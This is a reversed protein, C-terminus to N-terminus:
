VNVGLGFNHGTFTAAPSRPVDLTWQRQMQAHMTRFTASSGKELHFTVRTTYSGSNGIGMGGHGSLAPSNMVGRGYSVPTGPVSLAPSHATHISSPSPAVSFDIKFRLTKSNNDKLSCRWIGLSESDEIFVKAGSTLLLRKIEAQTTIFGECSDLSLTVTKWNFLGAFWSQKAGPASSGSPTRPTAPANYHVPSVLEPNNEDGDRGANRNTSLDLGLGPNRQQLRTPQAAKQNLRAQLPGMPAGSSSSPRREGSLSKRGDRSSDSATSSSPKAAGGGRIGLLSRRKGLFGAGGNEHQQPQPSAASNRNSAGEPEAFSVSSRRSTASGSLAPSIPRSAHPSPAPRTSLRGLSNKDTVALPKTQTQGFAGIQPLQPPVPSTPTYPSASADSGSVISSRANHADTVDLGEEDADEFQNLNFDNAAFDLLLEPTPPAPTAMPSPALRTPQQAHMSSSPASHGQGDQSRRRQQQQQQQQQRQQQHQQYQQLASQALTPATPAMPTPSAARISALEAAIEQFFRQVTADGVQPVTIAPAHQSLPRSGTSQRVTSPAATGDANSHGSLSSKRTPTAQIEHPRQERVSDRHTPSTMRRSLNPAASPQKPSSPTPVNAFRGTESPGRAARNEVNPSPPAPRPGAPSPSRPADNHSYARANRPRTPSGAHAASPPPQFIDAARPRTGPSSAHVDSGARLMPPKAPSAKTAHMIQVRPQQPQKAQEPAQVVPAAPQNAQKNPVIGLSLGLSNAQASPDSAQSARTQQQQQQQQELEAESDDEDEDEEDDMSHNDRHQVLLSYFTKQWTSGGTTLQKVIQRTSHEPWLSKLNKLIEVDIESEKLQVEVGLMAAGPGSPNVSSEAGNNTFWPHRMIEPMKARKEPDVELMRWILDKAGPELADPMDFRGDRVKHLLRTINPDDFPLRGCLLAFLIIGCSWIDSASGKYSKGSVIEPSAYHPSGCSTELMREVPQLAAMGFDAVKVVRKSGDLLLNEPKLDRHCINFRHCHDVGFIIQRFYSRAESPRLRGRAVLHDFLEGGAVYEMVLFLEKSTEYVDWLGLLNPHEILKMIVIEREIGLTLKDQKQSMEGLSMRSNALLQRPVIKVAAQQGTQGHQAIRVRGSAGQGILKGLKWPGINPPDKYDKKKEREFRSQPKNPQAQQQQQQQPQQSQQQQQQQQSQQPPRPAQRAPHARATQNSGPHHYIQSSAKSTSPPSASSITAKTATPRQVHQVNPAQRAQLPGANRTAGSPPQMTSM